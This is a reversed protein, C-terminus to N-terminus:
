VDTLTVSWWPVTDIHYMCRTVSGLSAEFQIRARADNTNHTPLDVSAPNYSDVFEGDVYWNITGNEGDFEVELLHPTNTAFQTNTARTFGGADNAVWTSWAGYTAPDTWTSVFGISGNDPIAASGASTTLGWFVAGKGSAAMTTSEAVVIMSLRVVVPVRALSASVLSYPSMSVIAQATRRALGTTGTLDELYGTRNYAWGNNTVVVTGNVVSLGFGTSLMGSIRANSSNTVQLATRTFGGAGGFGSKVKRPWQNPPQAQPGTVFREPMDPRKDYGYSM